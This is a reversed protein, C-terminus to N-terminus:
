SEEEISHLMMPRMVIEALDVFSPFRTREADTPPEAFPEFSPDLPEADAVDVFARRVYACHASGFRDFFEERAAELAADSDIHKPDLLSKAADPFLLLPAELGRWYLDVLTALLADPKAVRRFRTTKDRCVLVTEGGNGTSLMVLHRVWAGLMRRGSSSSYTYLVQANPGVNKLWGGIRTPDGSGSPVDLEIPLPEVRGTGLYEIVQEAIAQIGPVLEDYAVDGVIGLPLKGGARLDTPLAGSLNAGKRAREVLPSAFIWKELPDFELPERNALLDVDSGLSVGLRTQFFGRVPDEFFRALADVSVSRIADAQPPLPKELFRRQQSRPGRMSQAGDCLTSAYSFLRADADEGFYRPSFAHLPHTVVVEKRQESTLTDILQSVLVSPPQEKNNGISQGVYTVIVRDRACHLADVFAQRDDDRVSPDSPRPHRAVLDFGEAIPRRPFDGDNMGLMVVVRAPLCRSSVFSAFTVGGIPAEFARAREDLERHLADRVVSLPVEDVFGAREGRAVLADLAERIMRHEPETQWSADLLAAVPARLRGRWAALPVRASASLDKRAAFLAECFATLGGLVDSTGADVDDYPLCDGCMTTGDSGMAYGLVLRELGFRWTNERFAPQGVEVRHDEDEGWRIGSESVWRRVLALDGEELGFRTRIPERSLLDVVDSATLRSSAVEILVLFAEVVRLMRRASQDVIRYPLFGPENRPIGFVADIVPGYTDLSPCLVLIDRAELTRDADLLALLQDRLVECERMPAHCSHIALEPVSATAGLAQVTSRTRTGIGEGLQRERVALTEALPHRSARLFLHVPVQAGLAQFVDLVLTPLREPAFVSIREPLEVIGNGRLAELFTAYRRARHAAGHRAVLARWLPAQWAATEDGHDENGHEWALLLDPRHVLYSNFIRALREALAIRKTANRDDELYGRVGAFDRSPLFEPLAAAISWGLTAPAFPDDKTTSPCSEALFQEATLFRPNAWIGQQEALRLGLWDGVPRGPVIVTEREFPSSLPEKVTGALAEVLTALNSSSYVHLALNFHIVRNHRTM